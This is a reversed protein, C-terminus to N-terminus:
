PVWGPINVLGWNMSPMKNFSSFKKMSLDIAGIDTVMLEYSRLKLSLTPPVSVNYESCMREALAYRLYELYYADITLSLDQNFTVNSLSFKGWIKIPYNSGPSFYMNLNTGGLSRIQCWIFALSSINEVRSCANYQRRPTEVVSFRVPGIFYTFSEINICGPIFYTEQGPISVLDMESYYPVLRNDATKIALVANLMQLGSTEQGGSPTELDKSVIGSIYWADSVLKAATYAM